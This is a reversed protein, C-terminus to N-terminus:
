GTGGVDTGPRTWPKHKTLQQSRRTLIGVTEQLFRTSSDPLYSSIAQSNRSQPRTVVHWFVTWPFPPQGILLVDCDM